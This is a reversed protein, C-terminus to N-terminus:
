TPSPDLPVTSKASATTLLDVLLVSLVHLPLLVSPVVKLVTSVNFEQLSSEPTADLSVSVMKFFTDLTVCPVIPVPPVYTATVSVPLVNCNPTLTTEEQASASETPPPASALFVCAAPCPTPVTLVSTTVDRASDSPNLQSSTVPLVPVHATTTTPPLFPVDRASLPTPANPADQKVPSVFVTTRM